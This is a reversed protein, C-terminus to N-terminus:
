GRPRAQLADHRWRTALKAWPAAHFIAMLAYMAAMGDWAAGTHKAPCLMDVSGTASIGNLLAMLAFTPTAALHLWGIPADPAAVTNDCANRKDM